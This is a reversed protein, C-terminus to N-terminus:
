LWNSNRLDTRLQGSISMMPREKLSETYPMPNGTRRPPLCTGVQNYHWARAWIIGQNAESKTTKIEDLGPKIEVKLQEQGAKTMKEMKGLNAKM